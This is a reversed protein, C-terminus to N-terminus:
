PRRSASRRENVRSWLRNAYGRVVSSRFLLFTVVAAVIVSLHAKDVEHGPHAMAVPAFTAILTTILLSSRSRRTNFM